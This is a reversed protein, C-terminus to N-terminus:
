LMDQRHGLRNRAPGPRFQLREADEIFTIFLRGVAALGRQFLKERFGIRGIRKASDSPQV